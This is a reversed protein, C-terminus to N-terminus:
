KNQWNTSGGLSSDPSGNVRYPTLEGIRGQAAWERLKGLTWDLELEGKRSRDGTVHKRGEKEVLICGQSEKLWGLSAGGNGLGM